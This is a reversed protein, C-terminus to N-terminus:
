NAVKVMAPRIVTEGIKYGQQLVEAIVNEGLNEDDIHMVANHYEPDFQNNVAEIPKVGMEDLTTMLQKYIMDFGDKFAKLSEDEPVAALGREFNDVVPLIKEVVNGAGIEYMQSKERETRKRFNEFEARNRLLKDNLEAIQEDRKDRKEKKKKKDKKEEATEETVEAEEAVAENETDVAEETLVEDQENLIDKEQESM